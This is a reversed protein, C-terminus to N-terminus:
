NFLITQDIGSIGFKTSDHRIMIALYMMSASRVDLARNIVFDCQEVDEPLGNVMELLAFQQSLYEM